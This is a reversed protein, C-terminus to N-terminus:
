GACSPALRDAPEYSKRRVLAISVDDLTGREDVLELLATVADDDPMGHIARTIEDDDLPDTLGDSALLFRRDCTRERIVHPNVAEFSTMGGLSATLMGRRTPSRDDTSTQIVEGDVEVYVRADGVNAIVADEEGVRVAAITAGMSKLGPTRAMADYVVQNARHVADVLGIGTPAASAITDAALGAAVDGAIAGGMGDIVAVIADDPLDIAVPRDCGTALVWGGAVMRDENADKSRATRTALVARLM